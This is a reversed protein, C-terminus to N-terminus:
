KIKNMLRGIEQDKILLDAQFQEKEISQNKKLLEIEAKLEKIQQELERVKHIPSDAPADFEDKTIEKWEAM